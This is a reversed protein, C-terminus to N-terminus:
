ASTRGDIEVGLGPTRRLSDDLHDPRVPRLKVVTDGPKNQIRRACVVLGHEYLMLEPTDFLAVQRVQADLPDMGLAVVSSRRHADPVTLKLEVSDATKLMTLAEGLQENTMSPLAPASPTADPPNTMAGDQQKALSTPM